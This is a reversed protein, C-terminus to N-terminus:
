LIQLYNVDVVKGMGTFPTFYETVGTALAGPKLFHVEGSNDPNAKDYMGLIMSYGVPFWRTGNNLFTATTPPYLYLRETKLMSVLKGGLNMAVKVVNNDMDYEYLNGGSTYFLYGYQQDIAFHDAKDIGTLITTVDTLSLPTVTGTNTFTLRALYYNSAATDKLIAVAQGSYATTWGMWVLDKQVQDPDFAGSPYSIKTCNKSSYSGGFRVFRRNLTDFFISYFASSNYTVAMYNSVPFTSGTSLKNVPTNYYVGGTYSYTYVDHNYIAMSQSASSPYIYEARPPTPLVCENRFVYKQSNWTFGDTINLKQTGESTNIYEYVKATTNVYDRNNYSTLSLPKGPLRLYSYQGAVDGILQNVRSYHKPYTNWAGSSDQFYDLQTSDGVQSLVFWGYKVLSGEVTLKINKIWAVGTSKQTVKYYLDYSGVKLTINRDLNRTTDLIIRREEATTAFGNYAIWQYSFQSAATDLLGLSSSFTPFQAPNGGISITIASALGGIHLTDVESYSYNGLDKRCSTATVLIYLLATLGSGLFLKRYMM